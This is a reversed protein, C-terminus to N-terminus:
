SYLQQVDGVGPYLKFIRVAVSPNLGAPLQIRYSYFSEKKAVRTGYIRHFKQITSDSTGPRFHVLMQGGGDMPIQTAVMTGNPIGSTNASPSAAPNPSVGPSPSTVPTPLNVRQNPEAYEVLPSQSYAKLAEEVSVGQPLKLRYVDIGAIRSLVNADHHANIFRIDEPSANAKFKVLIEGPMYAASREPIAQTVPQLNVAQPKIHDAIKYVPVPNTSSVIALSAFLEAFQDQTKLAPVTFVWRQGQLQKAPSSFANSIERIADEKVGPQFTVEVTRAEAAQVATATVPSATFSVSLFVLAILNKM